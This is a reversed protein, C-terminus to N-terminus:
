AEVVCVTVARSASPKVAVAVNVISTRVGGFAGVLGATVGPFADAVTVHDAGVPVTEGVPYTTWYRSAPADEHVLPAENPDDTVDDITVPKVFPCAYWNWTTAVLSTPLLAAEDITLVVGNAGNDIADIECTRAVRPTARAGTVTVTVPPYPAFVNETLGASGFPRDRM